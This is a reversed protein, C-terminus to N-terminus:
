ELASLIVGELLIKKKLVVTTALRLEAVGYEIILVTKSNETLYFSLGFVRPVYYELFLKM